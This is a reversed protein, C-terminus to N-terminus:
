FYDEEYFFCVMNLYAEIRLRAGPSPCSPGLVRLPLGRVVYVAVISFVWGGFLCDLLTWHDDVGAVRAARAGGM